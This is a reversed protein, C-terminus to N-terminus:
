LSLSGISTGGCVFMTQGTIFSSHPDALFMVARAVGEPRGLRRVPIGDALTVIRPDSPPMVDHFMATGDIPGPAVHDIPSPRRDLSVVDRGADLCARRIALGIGASGGTVLARMM